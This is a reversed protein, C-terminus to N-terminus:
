SCFIPLNKFDVKQFYGKVEYGIWIENPHKKSVDLEVLVKAM